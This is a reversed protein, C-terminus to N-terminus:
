KLASRLKSLASQVPKPLVNLFAHSGFKSWLHQLAAVEDDTLILTVKKV